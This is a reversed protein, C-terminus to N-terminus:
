GLAEAGPALDRHGFTQDRAALEDVVGAGLAHKLMRGFSGGLSFLDPQAQSPRM